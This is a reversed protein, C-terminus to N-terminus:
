QAERLGTPYPFHFIHAPLVGQEKSITFSFVSGKGTESKCWIRGGHRKVLAKVYALGMGEGPTDQRGVRKFVEFLSLTPVILNSLDEIAPAFFAANRGGAFYELWGSSDVVNM